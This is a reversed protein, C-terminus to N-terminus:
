AWFLFCWLKSHVMTFFTYNRLLRHKHTQHTIYNRICIKLNIGYIVSNLKCKSNKVTEDERRTTNLRNVILKNLLFDRYKRTREEKLKYLYRLKANRVFEMGEGIRLAPHNDLKSAMMPLHRFMGNKNGVFSKLLTWENWSKCM